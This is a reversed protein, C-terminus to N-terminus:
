KNCMTVKPKKSTSTINVPTSKQFFWLKSDNIKEIAWNIPDTMGKGTKVSMVFNRVPGEDYLGLLPTQRISAHENINESGKDIGPVLDNKNGIVAVPINKIGNEKMYRKIDPIWKKMVSYQTQKEPISYMIFMADVGHMNSDRTKSFIDQAGMDFLHINIETDKDKTFVQAINCGQTVDYELNFKYYDEDGYCFREFYSTKGVGGDGVIVIKLNMKETTTQQKRKSM